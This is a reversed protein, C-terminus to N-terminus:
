KLCITARIPKMFFLLAHKQYSKRTDRVRGMFVTVKDDILDQKSEELLKNLYSSIFVISYGGGLGSITIFIFIM